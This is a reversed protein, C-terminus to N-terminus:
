SHYPCRLTGGMHGRPEVTLMSGKHACRNLLVSVGGDGQRVMLVPQAGLQATIFDGADPVQSTHGVYLWSRAWLRQMELAFLEADLYLDRHVQHPQM